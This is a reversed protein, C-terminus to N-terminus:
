IEEQKFNNIYENSSFYLYRINKELQYEEMSISVNIKLHKDFCM